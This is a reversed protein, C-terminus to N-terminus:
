DALEGNGIVASARQSASTSACPASSFTALSASDVKKDALLNGENEPSPKFEM